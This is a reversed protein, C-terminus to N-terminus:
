GGFIRKIFPLGEVFAWIAGGSGAIVGTVKAGGKMKNFTATHGTVVERMEGVDTGDMSKEIALLRNGTYEAHITQKTMEVTQNKMHEEIATWKGSESARREPQAM